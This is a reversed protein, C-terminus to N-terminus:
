NVSRSVELWQRTGGTTISVLKLVDNATASFNAGGALLINMNSGSTGSNNTVTLSGEFVLTIESGDQWGSNSILNITTTGTIYFASGGANLSLNNASAVDAGQSTKIYNSSVLWGTGNSNVTISSKAPIILSTPVGTVNDFTQSSTTALTLVGTGSNSVVYQRGTIGVATPLTYTNGGGVVPYEVMYDSGTISYSGFQPAIPFGVSKGFQADSYLTTTNFGVQAGSSMYLATTGGSNQFWHTNARFLFNEWAIGPQIAIFNTTATSATRSIKM